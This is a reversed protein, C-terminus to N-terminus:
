LRPRACICASWRRRDMAEELLSFQVLLSEFDSGTTRWAIRRVRSVLQLRKTQTTAPRLLRELRRRLNPTLGIYPEASASEGYLAFVAQRQPLQRLAEEPHAPDFALTQTLLSQSM